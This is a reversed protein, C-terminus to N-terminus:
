QGKSRAIVRAAKVAIGQYLAIEALGQETEGYGFPESSVWLRKQNAWQNITIAEERSIEVKM